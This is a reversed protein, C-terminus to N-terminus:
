RMTAALAMIIAEADKLPIPQLGMYNGPAFDDPNTLFQKLNDTTWRGDIARLAASYNYGPMAAIERDVLGTLPPAIDLGAHHCATCQTLLTQGTAVLEMTEADHRASFSVFGASVFTAGVCSAIAGFLAVNPFRVAFRSFPFFIANLFALFHSLALLFLGPLAAIWVAIGIGLLWTTCSGWRLWGRLMIPSLVPLVVLMLRLAAARITM